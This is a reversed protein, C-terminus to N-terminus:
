QNFKKKRGGTSKKLLIGEIIIVLLLLLGRKRKAEYRTKETALVFIDLAFDPVYM